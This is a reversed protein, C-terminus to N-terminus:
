GMLYALAVVWPWDFGEGMYFFTISFYLAFTAAKGLWRVELKTVGKTWGYLAGAGIVIERAILAVAFWGPLVGSLLGAIVAVVVAIRDALPDLFKGVETVQDLRRALYGDIWDTAGIIGLLLGAWGYEAAIVLWIFVPILALRILSIINPVNFLDRIM